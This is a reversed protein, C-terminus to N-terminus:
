SYISIAEFGVFKVMGLPVPLVISVEEPGMGCSRIAQIAQDWRKVDRPESFPSILHHLLQDM